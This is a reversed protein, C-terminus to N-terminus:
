GGIRRRRWRSRRRRRRRSKKINRRWVRLSRGGGKEVREREKARPKRSEKKRIEGKNRAKKWGERVREKTWKAWECKREGFVSDHVAEEYM